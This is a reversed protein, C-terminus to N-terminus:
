RGNKDPQDSGVTYAEGDAGRMELTVIADELGSENNMIGDATKELWVQGEIKM